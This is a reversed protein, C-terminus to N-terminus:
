MGEKIATAAANPKTEFEYHGLAGAM